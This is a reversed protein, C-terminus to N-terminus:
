DGQMKYEISFIGHAVSIITFMAKLVDVVSVLFLLLSALLLTHKAGRLYGYCPLHFRDILELVFPTSIALAYVFATLYLVFLTNERIERTTEGLSDLILNGRDQLRKKVRVLAPYVVSLLTALVGSAGILLGCALPGISTAHPAVSSGLEPLSYSVGGSVALISLSIRLTRSHLTLGLIRM